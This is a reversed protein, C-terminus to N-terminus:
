EGVTRVRGKDITMGSDQAAGKIQDYDYQKTIQSRLQETQTQYLTVRDEIDDISQNMEIIGMRVTLTYILMCLTIIVCSFVWFKELKSLRTKTKTVNHYRPLTAEDFEEGAEIYDPSSHAHQYYHNREIKRNFYPENNVQRHQENLLESM